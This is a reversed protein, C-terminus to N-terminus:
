SEVLYPKCDFDSVLIHHIWWESLFRFVGTKDLESQVASFLFDALAIKFQEHEEAHEALMPHNRAPLFEEEKSFHERACVAMEHLLDHLKEYGEPGASELCKLSEAYLLLMKYAAPRHHRERRQLLRAM